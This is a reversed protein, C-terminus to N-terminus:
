VARFCGPGPHYEAISEPNKKDQDDFSLIFREMQEWGEHSTTGPIPIFRDENEEMRM